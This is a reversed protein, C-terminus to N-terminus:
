QAPTPPPSPSTFLFGPLFVAFSPDNRPDNPAIKQYGKKRVEVGGGKFEVNTIVAGSNQGLGPFVKLTPHNPLCYLGPLGRLSSGSSRLRRSCQLSRNIAM